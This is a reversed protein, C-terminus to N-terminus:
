SMATKQLNVIAAALKVFIKPHAMLDAAVAPHSSLWAALQPYQTAFDKSSVVKPNAKFASAVAPNANLYAEFSQAARVLEAVRMFQAPNKAIAKAVAPHAKLWADLTPDKSMAKSSLLTPNSALAKAVAPHATLFADFRVVEILTQREYGAITPAPRSIREARTTKSSAIAFPAAMAASLVVAAVKSFGNRM